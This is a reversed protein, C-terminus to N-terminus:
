DLPQTLIQSAKFRLRGNEFLEWTEQQGVQSPYRELRWHNDKDAWAQENRTLLVSDTQSPVFLEIQNFDKSMVGYAASSANESQVDFLAFGEEWVRVCAGRVESWTYGASGICNHADRDNGVITKETEGCGLLSFLLFLGILKKM